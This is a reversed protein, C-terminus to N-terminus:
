SWPRTLRDEKYMDWTWDPFRSDNAPHRLVLELLSLCPGAKQQLTLFQGVTAHYRRKTPSALGDLSRKRELEEIVAELALTAIDVSEVLRSLPGGAEEFAERRVRLITAFFHLDELFVYANHDLLLGVITEHRAYMAIALASLGAAYPYNPDAGANLCFRVAPINEELVAAQLPASSSLYYFSGLGIDEWTAAVDFQQLLDVSLNDLYSVNASAGKKLLDDAVDFLHRLIAFTLPSRFERPCGDLIKVNRLVTQIEQVRGASCGSANGVHDVLRSVAKHRGGRHLVAQLLSCYRSQPTFHSSGEHFVGTELLISLVAPDKIVDIARALGMDKPISAGADLLARLIFQPQELALWFPLQECCVSANPQARGHRGCLSPDAGARLLIIAIDQEPPHKSSHVEALSGRLSLQLATSAMSDLRPPTKVANLNVNTAMLRECCKTDRLSVATFLLTELLENYLLTLRAPLSGYFQILGSSVVVSLTSKKWLVILYCLAVM